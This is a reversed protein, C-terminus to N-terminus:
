PQWDIASLASLSLSLPSSLSHYIFLVDHQRIMATKLSSERMVKVAIVGGKEEVVPEGPPGVKGLLSWQSRQASTAVAPLQWPQLGSTTNNAVPSTRSVTSSCRQTPRTSAPRRPCLARLMMDPLMSLVTVCCAQHGSISLFIYELLKHANFSKKKWLLFKVIPFVFFLCVCLLLCVLVRSHELTQHCKPKRCFCKLFSLFLWFKM